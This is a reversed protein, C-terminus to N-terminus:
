NEMVCDFLAFGFVYSSVYSQGMTWCAYEKQMRETVCGIICVITDEIERLSFGKGTMLRGFVKGVRMSEVLFCAANLVGIGDLVSVM